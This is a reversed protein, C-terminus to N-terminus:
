PISQREIELPVSVGELPVRLPDVKWQWSGAAFSHPGGGFVVAPPKVQKLTEGSDARFAEKKPEPLLRDAIKNWVLPQCRQNWGGTLVSLPGAQKAGANVDAESPTVM